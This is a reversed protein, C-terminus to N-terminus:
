GRHSGFAHRKMGKGFIRHLEKHVKRYRKSLSIFKHADIKKGFVKPHYPRYIKMIGNKKVVSIRGDSYREFTAGGASWRKIVIGAAGVGEYGGIFGRGGRVGAREALQEVGYAAGAIGALTLATRAGQGMTVGTVTEMAAAATGRFGPIDIIPAEKFSGAQSSGPSAPISHSNSTSQYAKYALTGGLLAVSVPAKKAISVATSPISRVASVVTAATAARSVSPAVRAITAAVTRTVPATATAVRAIVPAAAVSVRSIVPAVATRVAQVAPAAAKAVTAAITRAVPAAATVVRSVVSRIPASSAVRALISGLVM